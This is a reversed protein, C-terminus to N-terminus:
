MGTQVVQTSGEIIKKQKTLGHRLNPGERWLRDRVRALEERFDLQCRESM